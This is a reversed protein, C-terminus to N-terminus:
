EVNANRQTEQEILPEYHIILFFESGTFQYVYTQLQKLFYKGYDSLTKM